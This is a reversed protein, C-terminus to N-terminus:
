EVYENMKQNFKKTEEELYKKYIETEIIKDVANNMMHEVRSLIGLKMPLDITSANLFNLLILITTENRKAASVQLEKFDNLRKAMYNTISTMESMLQKYEESKTEDKGWTCMYYPITITTFDVEKPISIYEIDKKDLSNIKIENETSM